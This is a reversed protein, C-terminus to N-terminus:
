PLGDVVRVGHHQKTTVLEGATGKMGNILYNSAPSKDLNLIVSEVPKM